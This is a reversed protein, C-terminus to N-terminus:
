LIKDVWEELHKKNTEVQKKLVLCEDHINSEKGFRIVYDDIAKVLNDMVSVDSMHKAISQEKREDIAKEIEDDEGYYKKHKDIM